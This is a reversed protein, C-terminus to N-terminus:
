RANCIEKCEGLERSETCTVVCDRTKNKEHNDLLGAGVTILIIVLVMFLMFRTFGDDMLM